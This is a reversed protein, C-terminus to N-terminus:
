AAILETCNNNFWRITGNHGLRPLHLSQIGPNTAQWSAIKSSTKRYHVVRDLGGLVISFPTAPPTHVDSWAANLEDLTYGKYLRHLDKRHTAAILLRFWSHRTVLEALNTGTAAYLGPRPNQEAFKKQMGAAIPGGLSVGCFRLYARSTAREAFDDSIEDILTPLQTPDGELLVGTHYAYVVAGRGTRALDRAAQDLQNVNGAFGTVLAVIEEGDGYEKARFAHEASM